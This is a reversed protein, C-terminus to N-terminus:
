NLNKSSTFRKLGSCVAGGHWTGAASFRQLYITAPPQHNTAPFLWGGVVLWWGGAVLWWGGAVLREDYTGHGFDHTLFGYSLVKQRSVGPCLFAITTTFARRMSAVRIQFSANDHNERQSFLGTIDTAFPLDRPAAPAVPTSRPEAGLDPPPSCASRSMAWSGGM